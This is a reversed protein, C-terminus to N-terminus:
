RGVADVIARLLTEVAEHKGKPYWIPAIRRDNLWRNRDRFEEDDSPSEVIAYHTPMGPTAAIVHELVRMTRDGLLSCGLFLLVSSSFIRGLATPLPTTWPGPDPGYHRNYEDSTLVRDSPDAADGHIKLLYLNKTFLAESVAAFRTGWIPIIRRRAAFYVNEIVPDFNTTIISGNTIRPLLMVAGKPTQENGFVQRVRHHLGSPGLQEEIRNAAEEFRGADCASTVEQEIGLRRAEVVLFARWGPYGCPISLGAGVFPRLPVGSRIAAVLENFNDRNSRFWLLDAVAIFPRASDEPISPDVHARLFALVRGVIAQRAVHTEDTAGHSRINSTLDALEGALASVENSLDDGGENFAQGNQAVWHKLCEIAGELDGDRLLNQVTRRTDTDHQRAM